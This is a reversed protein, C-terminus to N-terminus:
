DTRRVSAGDPGVVQITPPWPGTCEVVTTGEPGSIRVYSYSPVRGILWLVVIVLFALELTRRTHKSM